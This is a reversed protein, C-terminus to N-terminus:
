PTMGPLTAPGIRAASSLAMCVTRQTSRPLFPQFLAGLTASAIREIVADLAFPRLECIVPGSPFAASLLSTNLPMSLVSSYEATATTMTMKSIV